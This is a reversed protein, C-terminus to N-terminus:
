LSLVNIAFRIFAFVNFIILSFLYVRVFRKSYFEQKNVFIAIIASILACLIPMSILLGTFATIMIESSNAESFTGDLNYVGTNKTLIFLCISNLVLLIIFAILLTKNSITKM